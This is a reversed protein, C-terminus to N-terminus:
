KALYDKVEDDSCFVLMIIGLVCNVVDANIINIIMMVAIGTPPTQRSADAGLLASGRTIAMIGMILSYYTGPWLCCLGASFPGSSLALLVGLIGGVLAMVGLATVKGPKQDYRRGRYMETDADDEDSDDDRSKKKKSPESSKSRKDWEPNKSAVPEAATTEADSDDANPAAATFIHKCEPCQVTMGLLNDPVQLQKKCEPCTILHSM